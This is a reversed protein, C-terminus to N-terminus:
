GLYKCFIYCGNGNENNGGYIFNNINLSNVDLWLKDGATLPVIATQSANLRSTQTQWQCCLRYLESNQAKLGTYVDTTQNALDGLRMSYGILYCGTKPIVIYDNSLMNSPDIIPALGTVRVGQGAPLEINHTTGAVCLINFINKLTERNHSVGSSDIFNNNKLKISKAM